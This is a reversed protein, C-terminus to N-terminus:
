VDDNLQILRAICDSSGIARYTGDTSPANAPAVRVMNELISSARSSPALTLLGQPTTSSYDKRSAAEGIERAPVAGFSSARRQLVRTREGDCLSLM